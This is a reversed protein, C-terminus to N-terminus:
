IIGLLLQSVSKVLASPPELLDEQIVIDKKVKAFAPSPTRPVLCDKFNINQIWFVCFLVVLKCIIQSCRSVVYGAKKQANQM